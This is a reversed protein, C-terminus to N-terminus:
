IIGKFEKLIKDKSENLASRMFPNAVKHRTGYEVAKAYDEDSDVKIEFKNMDSKDLEISRKLDGSDVPANAKVKDKLVEGADILADKFKKELISELNPNPTFSM